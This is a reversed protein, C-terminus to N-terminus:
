DKSDQYPQGQSSVSPQTEKFQGAGSSRGRRWSSLPRGGEPVEGLWLPVSGCEDGCGSCVRYEPNDWWDIGLGAGEQVFLHEIQERQEQRDILM